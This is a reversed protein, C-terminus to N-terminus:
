SNYKEFAKKLYDEIYWLPNASEESGLKVFMDTRQNIISAVKEAFATNRSYEGGTKPYADYWLVYLASALIRRKSIQTKPSDLFELLLELQSPIALILDEDQELFHLKDNISWIELQARSLPPIANSEGIFDQSGCQSCPKKWERTEEFAATLEDLFRTAEYGCSACSRTQKYKQSTM